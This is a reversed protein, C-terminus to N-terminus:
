RPYNSNQYVGNGPHALKSWNINPLIIGSLILVAGVIGISGLSDGMFLWGLVATTLPNIAIIIGTTESSLPKQAIPQMTFGFGTCVVALILLMIWQTSDDPLHPAEFMFSTILGMVGMVGVYLIGLTMPDYKKSIRDTIIIAAAYSFAAIMCLIEGIGFGSFLRINGIGNSASGSGLVILGIGIFTIITSVAIVRPPFRRLLIAEIVPVIVIASNELFSCISATTYQLGVLEATMCLYYVGGLLFSASVIHPNEKIDEVIKGSFFIFLILFALLFRIGLLNLPEISGLLQKSFLFASGRVISMAVIILCGTKFSIEINNM